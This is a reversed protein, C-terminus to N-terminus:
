HSARFYSIMRFVYQSILKPLNSGSKIYFHGYSNPPDHFKLEQSYLDFVYEYFIYENARRTLSAGSRKAICEQPGEAENKKLVFFIKSSIETKAKSGKKTKLRM